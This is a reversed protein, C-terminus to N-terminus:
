LPVRTEMTARKFWKSCPNFCYIWTTLTLFHSVQNSRFLHATQRWVRGHHYLITASSIRKIKFTTLSAFFHTQSNCLLFTIHLRGFHINHSQMHIRKLLGVHKVRCNWSSEFILLSHCPWKTFTDNKICVFSDKVRFSLIVIAIKNLM